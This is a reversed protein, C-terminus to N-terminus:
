NLDHLNHLVVYAEVPFGVVDVAFAPLVLLQLPANWWTHLRRPTPSPSLVVAMPNGELQYPIEPGTFKTVGDSQFARPLDEPRADRGGIGIPIARWFLGGGSVPFFVQVSMQNTAPPKRDLRYTAIANTIGRRMQERNAVFYKKVGPQRGFTSSDGTYYVSCEIAVSGNSAVMIQGAYAHEYWLGAHSVAQSLCGSCFMTLGLAVRLKAVLRLM